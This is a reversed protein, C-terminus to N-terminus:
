LGGGATCKKKAQQAQKNMKAFMGTCEEVQVKNCTSACTPAWVELTRDTNVLPFQQTITQAFVGPTDLAQQTQLKTVSDSYMQCKGGPTNCYSSLCGQVCDGLLYSGGFSALMLGTVLCFDLFRVM